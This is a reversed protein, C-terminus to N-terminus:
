IKKIKLINLYYFDIFGESIDKRKLKIINKNIKNYFQM